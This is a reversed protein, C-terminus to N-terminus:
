VLLFQSYSEPNHKLKSEMFASIKYSQLLMDCFELLIDFNKWSPVNKQRKICNTPLREIMAYGYQKNEDMLFIKTIISRDFYKKENEM